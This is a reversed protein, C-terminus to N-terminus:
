ECRDIWELVADLQSLMFDLALCGVGPQVEERQALLIKRQLQCAAKQHQTIADAPTGLLRAVHRRGRFFGPLMFEPSQKTAQRSRAIVAIISINIVYIRVATVPGTRAAQDRGKGM